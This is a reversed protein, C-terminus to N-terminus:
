AGYHHAVVRKAIGYALALAPFAALLAHTAGIQVVGASQLLGATLYAFVLVVSGLAIAELEIRRQLEDLARTYRATARVFYGIPVVPLLAVLARQWPPGIRELLAVSAAVAVVYAAFSPYFERMYRRSIARTAASAGQERHWMVLSVIALVLGLWGLVSAVPPPLADMERLAVSGAFALMAAIAVLESRQNMAPTDFM